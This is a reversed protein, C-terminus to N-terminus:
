GLEGFFMDSVAAILHSKFLGELIKVPNYECLLWM